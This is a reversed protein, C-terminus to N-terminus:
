ANPYIYLKTDDGNLTYNYYDRQNDTGSVIHITRIYHVGDAIYLKINDIDEFRM